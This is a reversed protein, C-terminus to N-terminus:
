NNPSQEEGGFLIGPLRDLAHRFASVDDLLAGVILGGQIEVLAQEAAARADDETRGSEVALAALGDIWERLIGVAKSRAPEPVAGFSFAALLCLSRGGDYYADLQRCMARLRERCPQSSKLVAFTERELFAAVSDVAAAAMDDKGGPFRHYLSARRLGTAQALLTLSAGGFGHERFVDRIAVIADDTEVKSPRM